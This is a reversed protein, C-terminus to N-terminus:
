TNVAPYNESKDWRKSKQCAQATAAAHGLADRSDPQWSPPQPDGARPLGLGRADPRPQRHLPQDRPVARHDRGLEHHHLLSRVNREVRGKRAQVLGLIKAM